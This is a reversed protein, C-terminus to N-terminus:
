DGSGGDGGFGKYDSDSGSIIDGLDIGWEIGDDRGSRRKNFCALVFGLFILFLIFTSYGNHYGYSVSGVLLTVGLSRFSAYLKKALLGGVTFLILGVVINGIFLLYIAALVISYGILNM